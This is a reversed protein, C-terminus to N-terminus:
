PQRAISVYLHFRGPNAGGTSTLDTSIFIDSSAARIMM